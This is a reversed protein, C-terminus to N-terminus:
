PTGFLVVEGVVGKVLQFQLLQFVFSIDLRGGNLVYLPEQLAQVLMIINLKPIVVNCHNHKIRSDAGTLNQCQLVGVVIGFQLGNRDTWFDGLGTLATGDVQGRGGVRSQFFKQLDFWLFPFVPQERGTIAQLHFGVYQPPVETSVTFAGACLEGGVLDSVAESGKPELVTSIQERELLLHSM